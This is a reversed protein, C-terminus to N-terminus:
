KSLWRAWLPWAMGRSGGLGYTWHEGAEQRSSLNISNRDKYGLQDVDPDTARAENTWFRIQDM